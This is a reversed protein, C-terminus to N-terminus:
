MNTSTNAQISSFGVVDDVVEVVVEDVVGGGLQASRPRMVHLLMVSLFHAFRQSPITSHSM